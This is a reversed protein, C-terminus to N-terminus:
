RLDNLDYHRLVSAASGSAATVSIRSAETWCSVRPYASVNIVVVVRLFYVRSNLLLSLSSPHHYSSSSSSSSSSFSFSFSSSSSAFKCAGYPRLMPRRRTTIRDVQLRIPTSSRDFRLRSATTVPAKYNRHIVSIQRSRRRTYTSSAVCDTVCDSGRLTIFNRLLPAEFIVSVDCQDCV